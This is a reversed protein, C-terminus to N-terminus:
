LLKMAVPKDVPIEMRDEGFFINGKFVASMEAIVRERVGPQDIQETVHSLVINRVSAEAGLRALEMHGMCSKAFDKGLETGSLYHCMHILVDCGKALKEMSACPGSDGSYVVSGEPTDLRFALPTLYPQFHAAAGVTVKWLGDAVVDGASVETVVPKPMARPLTGGRARFIDLSCNHETRSILDPGFVGDRQFLQDTMRVLPPPGFVKLEPIKGVGQDWRTLVLRAYDGCHDYHLHSLFLHTVDTARVGIELLRHHAGFGHDLVIRDDGAEVLYGSCMRKLSPTPTGTGLLHIKM